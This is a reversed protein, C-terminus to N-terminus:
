KVLGGKARLRAGFFWLSFPGPVGIALFVLALTTNGMGYGLSSYLAPAFLPFCFAFISRLFQSAAAASAVHEKFSEMTYQQMAQTSLIVGCGFVAAGADVVAWHSRAQAAWGYWLLGTPMLLIGPIMLSVRSEPATQGGAKQKLQQWIRDTIRAGGQAAVTYGIALAIYHLGSVTVTQGYKNTWLSAYSALVFYLTGYNFAMMLSMLQIIPQHALLRCPRLLANRLKAALPQAHVDFATCHQIGTQQSITVAKRHLLLQGYTEPSMFYAMVILCADFISLVWFIWPWGITGAIVGGLLPGLAPGLLPIFTAIAFSMGRQEPRWLDGLVPQGIAYEASSGLGALLRAALLLGNSDAFGCVTNWITYWAACLLWVNRRGLVETMPALVMPGFAFALVFISLTMNAKGQSVEMQTSITELAPALMTSSMLCILGGCSTLITLLWKRSLPWNKPNKPDDDGEWTVLLTDDTAAQSGGKEEELPGPM